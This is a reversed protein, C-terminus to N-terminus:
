PPMRSKGGKRLVINKGQDVKGVTWQPSRVHSLRHTAQRTECHNAYEQAETSSKTLLLAPSADHFQRKFSYFELYCFVLV